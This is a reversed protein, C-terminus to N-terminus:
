RKRKAWKRKIEGEGRAAGRLVDHLKITSPSVLEFLNVRGSFLKTGLCM